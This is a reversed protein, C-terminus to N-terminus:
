AVKRWKLLAGSVLTPVALWAIWLMDVVRDSPLSASLGLDRMADPGAFVNM